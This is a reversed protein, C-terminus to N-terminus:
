ILDELEQKLIQDYQSEKLNSYVKKLGDRHAHPNCDCATIVFYDLEDMGYKPTINWGHECNCDIEKHDDAYSEATMHNGTDRM